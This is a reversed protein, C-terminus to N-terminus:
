HGADASVERNLGKTSGGRSWSRVLGASGSAILVGMASGFVVDLPFHVGLYVRSVACASAIAIMPPKLRPVFAAVALLVAFATLSHGSPFSNVFLPGDVIRVDFLQLLPRPRSWVMKSIQVAAGSIAFATLGAYAAQRWPLRDALLGATLFILCVATQVLGVGAMTAAIMLSDLKESVCSGNILQFLWADARAIADHLAALYATM